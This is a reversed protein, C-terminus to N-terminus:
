DKKDHPVVHVTIQPNSISAGPAAGEAAGARAAHQMIYPYIVTQRPQTNVAQAKIKEAAAIQAAQKALDALANVSELLHQADAKKKEAAKLQEESHENVMEARGMNLGAESDAGMKTGEDEMAENLLEEWKAKHEEIAKENAEIKEEAEGQVKEAEESHKAAENAEAEAVMESMKAETEVQAAKADATEVLHNARKTKEETEKLLAEIKEYQDKTARMREWYDNASVEADSADSKAGQIKEEEAEMEEKLVAIRKEVEEKEHVAAEAAAEAAAKLSEEVKAMSKVKITQANRATITSEARAKMRAVEDEAAEEMRAAKEGASADAKKRQQEVKLDDSVLMDKKHDHERQEWERAKKRMGEVDEESHESEVQYYAEKSMAESLEERVAAEEAKNEELEKEAQEREKILRDHLEKYEAKLEQIQESYKGKLGELQDSVLDAAHALRAIEAKIAKHRESLLNESLHMRHLTVQERQVQRDLAGLSAVHKYWAKQASDLTGYAGILQSPEKSALLQPNQYYNVLDGMDQNSQKAAHLSDWYTKEGLPAAGTWENGLVELPRAPNHVTLAVGVCAVTALAALTGILAWRRNVAGRVPAAREFGGGSMGELEKSGYFPSAAM